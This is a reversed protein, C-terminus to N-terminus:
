AQMQSRFLLLHDPVVNEHDEGPKAPTGQASSHMRGTATTAQTIM